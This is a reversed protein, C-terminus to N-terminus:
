SNPAVAVRRQSWGPLADPKYLLYVLAVIGQAMLFMMASNVIAIFSYTQQNSIGTMMVFCVLPMTKLAPWRSGALSFLFSYVFILAFLEGGSLNPMIFLYVPPVALLTSAILVVLLSIPNAKTLLTLLGFVAALMPIKPGLPPDAVIWFLFAAVFCLAPFLANILRETDLRVHHPRTQQASTQQVTDPVDSGRPWLLLRIATYIIVGVVTELYRYTGFYFAQPINMYTDAWVIVAVFGAVCWAYAYQSALMFYSIVVLYSAIFLMTMWRDQGFMALLLWGVLVAVSTGVIRLVGKRWSARATDLSILVIALAGYQPLNWNAALAIWYFLV